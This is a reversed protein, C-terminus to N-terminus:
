NADLVSRKYNYWDIWGDVKIECMVSNHNNNILTDMLLDINVYDDNSQPIPIEKQKNVGGITYGAKHVGFMALVILLAGIIKIRTM